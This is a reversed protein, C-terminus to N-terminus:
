GYSIFDEITNKFEIAISLQQITSNFFNNNEDISKISQAAELYKNKELQTLINGIAILRSDSLKKSKSPQIEIYPLMTEILKNKKILNASIYNNTEKKFSSILFESGLFKKNNIIYLKEAIHVSENGIINSFLELETSYDKGNEFKLKILKAINTINIKDINSKPLQEKTIKNNQLEIQINKLETKINIFDNQIEKLINNSDINENKKDLVDFINNLKINNESILLEIKQIKSSNLNISNQLNNNQLAKNNESASLSSYSRYFLYGLLILILLLSLSFSLKSFLYFKSLINKM